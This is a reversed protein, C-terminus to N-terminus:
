SPDRPFRASNPVFLYLFAVVFAAAGVVITLAVLLEMAPEHFDTAAAVVGEGLAKPKLLSRQHPGCQQQRLVAGCVFPLVRM